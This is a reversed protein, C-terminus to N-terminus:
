ARVLGRFGWFRRRGVKVVGEFGRFYWGGACHTGFSEVVNIAVDRHQGLVVVGHLFLLHPSYDHPCVSVLDHSPFLRLWLAIGPLATRFQTAPPFSSVIGLGDDIHSSGVLDKWMDFV